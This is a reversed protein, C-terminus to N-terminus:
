RNSADQVKEGAREIDKGAGEVTNCASLLFASLVITAFFAFVSFPRFTSSKM